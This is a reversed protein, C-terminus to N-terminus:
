SRAAREDIFKLTASIAADFKPSSSGYMRNLGADGIMTALTATDAASLGRASAIAAALVAPAERSSRASGQLLALAAQHGAETRSDIGAAGLLSRMGDELQQYSHPPLQLESPNVNWGMRALTSMWTAPHKSGIEATAEEIWSTPLTLVRYQLTDLVRKPLAGLNSMTLMNLPFPAKGKIIDTTASPGDTHETEHLLLQASVIAQRKADAGTLTGAALDLLPNAAKPALVVWDGAVANFDSTKRAIEFAGRLDSGEARGPAAGLQVKRRALANLTPLIMGGYALSLQDQDTTLIVGRTSMRDARDNFAPLTANLLQVLRAGAAGTVAQRAAESVPEYQRDGLPGVGHLEFALLGNWADRVSGAGLKVDMAWPASAVKSLVQWTDLGQLPPTAPGEGAAVDPAPSATVPRRVLGAAITAPLTLKM